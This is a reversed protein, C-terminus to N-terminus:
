AAEKIYFRWKNKVAEGYSELATKVDNADTQREPAFQVYKFFLHAGEIASTVEVAELRNQIATKLPQITYTHTEEETAEPPNVPETLPVIDFPSEQESFPEVDVVTEVPFLDGEKVTAAEQIAEQEKYKNIADAIFEAHITYQSHKNYDGMKKDCSYTILGAKSLKSKQKSLNGASLGSGKAVTDNSPYCEGSESNWYSLITIMAAFDKHDLSFVRARYQAFLKSLEFQNM